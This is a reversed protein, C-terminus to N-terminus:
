GSLKKESKVLFRTAPKGLGIRWFSVAERRLTRQRRVTM